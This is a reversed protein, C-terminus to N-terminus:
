CTLRNLDTMQNGNHTIIANHSIRRKRILLIIVLLILCVAIGVGSVIMLHGGQTFQERRIEYYEPEENNLSGGSLIEVTENLENIREEYALIKETFNAVCSVYSEEIESIRRYLSTKDNNLDTLNFQLMEIESKSNEIFNMKEELLKSANLSKLESDHLQHIIGEIAVKADSHNASLIKNETKLEEMDILMENNQTTLTSINQKLSDLIASFELKERSLQLTTVNYNAIKSKLGNIENMLSNQLQELEKILPKLPNRCNSLDISEVQKYISNICLNQRFDALILNPVDNLLEKEIVALQNNNFLIEKLKLNQAFLKAPLYELHNDSLSLIELNKLHAFTQLKIYSIENRMLYLEELEILESFTDESITKLNSKEIGLIRLKNSSEEFDSKSISELSCDDIWLNNLGKFVKSYGVPIFKMQPQGAFLLREVGNNNSYKLHRGEAKTIKVNPQNTIIENVVKCNYGNETNSTLFVFKCNLDLAETAGIFILFIM